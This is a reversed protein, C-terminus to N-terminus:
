IFQPVVFSDRCPASHHTQSPWPLPYDRITAMDATDVGTAAEMAVAMAVATDVETAAATAAATVVTAATDETAEMAGTIDMTDTTDM